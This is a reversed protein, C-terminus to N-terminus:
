RVAAPDCDFGPVHLEVFSVGVLIGFDYGPGIYHEGHAIVAHANLVGYQFM